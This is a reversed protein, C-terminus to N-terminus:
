GMSAIMRQPPAEGVGVTGHESPVVTFLNICYKDLIDNRGDLVRDRLAAGVEAAHLTNRSFERATSVLPSLDISVGDAM